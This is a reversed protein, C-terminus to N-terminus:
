KKRTMLAWVIKAPFMEDLQEETIKDQYLCAMLADEDIVRVTKYVDDGIGTEEIIREATLEDLKRQVRRSKEIRAVGEIGAGLELTLNGKDDEFGHEEIQAFLKERLESKRTEMFELSAKLKMYERLQTELSDPDAFRVGEEPIVEAM